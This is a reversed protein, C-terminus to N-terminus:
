FLVFAAGVGMVGVVTLVAAAVVMEVIKQSASSRYESIEEM